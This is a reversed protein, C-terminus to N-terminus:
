PRAVLGDIRRALPSMELLARQAQELWDRSSDSLTNMRGQLQAKIHELYALGAECDAWVKAEALLQRRFEEEARRKRELEERIRAEEERRLRQREWELQRERVAEIATVLGTVVEDLKSELTERAGDSWTKRGDYYGEIQFILKGTPQYTYEKRDAWSYQKDKILHETRNYHEHLRFVVGVGNREAKLRKEKDSTTLKVSFEPLATEIAHLIRAAREVSGPAVYCSFVSEGQCFVLGREDPKTKQLRKATTSAILSLPQGAQPIQVRPEPLKLAVLAAPPPPPRNRSAELVVEVNEGKPLPPKRVPKDHQVKMWYGVPPLPIQHKRCAKALGVDSIDFEKALTRVPTEWVRRYLAERTIKM